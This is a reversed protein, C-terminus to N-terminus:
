LIATSHTEYVHSFFRLTLETSLSLALSEAEDLVTELSHTGGFLEGQLVDRTECAEAARRLAAAAVEAQTLALRSGRSGVRVLM